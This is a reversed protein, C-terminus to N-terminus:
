LFRVSTGSAALRVEGPQNVALLRGSDDDQGHETLMTGQYDGQVVNEKTLLM